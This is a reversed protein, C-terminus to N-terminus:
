SPTLPQLRKSPAEPTGGAAASAVRSDSWSHQEAFAADSINCPAASPPEWLIPSTFVLPRGQNGAVLEPQPAEERWLPTVGLATVSPGGGGSVLSPWCSVFTCAKKRFFVCSETDEKKNLLRRFERRAEGHQGNAPTLPGDGRTGGQAEEYQLDENKQPSRGRRTSLPFSSAGSEYASRVSAVATGGHLQSGREVEASGPFKQLEATFRKLQFSTVPTPLFWHVGLPGGFVEQLLQSGTKKENRLKKLTEVAAACAGRMCFPGGKCPALQVPMRLVLSLRASFFAGWKRMAAALSAEGCAFCAFVVWSGFPLTGQQRGGCVVARHLAKYEKGTTNALISSLQDVFMVITFLGFIFALMCTMAGFVASQLTVDCLFHRKRYHSRRAGEVSTQFAADEQDSSNAGGGELYRPRMWRTLPDQAAYLVGQAIDEAAHLRRPGRPAGLNQVAEVAEEPLERSAHSSQPIRWRRNSAEASLQEAYPEARYKATEQIADGYEAVSSPMGEPLISSQDATWATGEFGEAAATDVCTVVRCVLVVFATCCMLNVYVLFLLFYKQNLFGVCNNIWPGSFRGGRPTYCNCWPLAVVAVAAVTGRGWWSGGLLKRGCLRNRRSLYEQTLAFVDRPLVFLEQDAVGRGGMVLQSAVCLPSGHPHHVAQLWLLSTGEFAEANRLTLLRFLFRAFLAGGERCEICLRWMIGVRPVHSLFCLVSIDSSSPFTAPRAATAACDCFACQGQRSTDRCRKGIFRKVVSLPCCLFEFLRLLACKKRSPLEGGQLASANTEPEQVSADAHSTPAGPIQLEKAPSESSLALPVAGPDGLACKLHAVAALGALLEFFAIILFRWFSLASWNLLCTTVTYNSFLLLAHTLLMCIIGCPDKTFWLYTEGMIDWSDASFAPLSYGGKLGYPVEYLPREHASLPPPSVPLQRPEGALQQLLLPLHLPHLTQSLQSLAKLACDLTMMRVRPSNPQRAGGVGEDITVVEPMAVMPDRPLSPPLLQVESQSVGGEGDSGGHLSVTGGRERASMRRQQQHMKLKVAGHTGEHLGAALVPGAEIGTGGRSYGSSQTGRLTPQQADLDGYSPVPRAVGPAASIPAQPQQRGEWFAAAQLGTYGGASSPQQLHLQASSSGGSAVPFVPRPDTGATGGQQTETVGSVIIGGTTDAARSRRSSCSAKCLDSPNECLNIRVDDERCKHNVTGKTSVESSRQSQSSCEDVEVPAPEGAAGAASDRCAAEARQFAAQRRADGAAERNQEARHKVLWFFSLSRSGRASGGSPALAEEGSVGLGSEVVSRHHRRRETPIDSPATAGAATGAAGQMLGGGWTGEAAADVDPSPLSQSGGEDEHAVYTSGNASDMRCYPSEPPLQCLSLCSAKPVSAVGAGGPSRLPLLLEVPPPPVEQTLQFAADGSTRQKSPPSADNGTPAAAAASLGTSIAPMRTSQPVCTGAAARVSARTADTAPSPSCLPQQQQDETTCCGPPATVDTDQFSFSDAAKRMAQNHNRPLCPARSAESPELFGVANELPSDGACASGETQGLLICADVLSTGVSANRVGQLPLLPLPVAAAHPAGGVPPRESPASYLARWCDGSGSYEPPLDAVLDGSHPVPPSTFVSVPIHAAVPERDSGDM